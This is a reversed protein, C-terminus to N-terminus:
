STARVISGGAAPLFEISTQNAEGVSAAIPSYTFLLSTMSYSPNTSSVAASTPKIVVAFGATNTVLPSMTQDLSSAAFDQFFNITISDNRLGKGHERATAGMATLDVDEFEQNIEVSEVHNSLDVSNVVVSADTLVHKAM